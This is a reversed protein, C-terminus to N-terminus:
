EVANNSNEVESSWGALPSLARWQLLIQLSEPQTSQSHNKFIIKM